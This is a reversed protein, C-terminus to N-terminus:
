ATEAGSQSKALRTLATVVNDPVKRARQRLFDLIREPPIGEDQARQLSRKNIQYIYRPYSQQWAAFREVRFREALPATVDMRVTFDEGVQLPRRPVEPPEEIEQGLWRAGRATLMIQMDDGASPEAIDFVGLWHLPGQLLFTILRGEVAEWQEFGKLFEQTSIDRIYWTDYNGDPRQFDPEAEKIAEVLDAQSYWAEPQLRNLIHLLATRTQLPRNEWAGTERCELGPTRCLDNWEPSDRWTAFLAAHQDHQPRELFLHVRNGSLQVINDDSRRLWGLRNAIHLMLALRTNLATDEVTFPFQLREVLREIDDANPGDQTIRLQDTHIFGLLTGMDALFSQDAPITRAAPPPPVPAVALGNDSQSNQPQPLWPLVDSPVYVIANAERGLGKFGRGLLGYYYLIEAVSEPYLWPSERELKAPGMQRITGFERSFQAETMEGNERLLTDLADKANSAMDTVEQYAFLISTPDTIQAALLQVAEHRSDAADLFAGRLEGLVQILVDPYDTLMQATTPM